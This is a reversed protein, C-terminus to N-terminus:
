GALRRRTRASGVAAPKVAATTPKAVAKTAQKKTSSARRDSAGATAKAAPAAKSVPAREGATDAGLRKRAPATARRGAAPAVDPAATARRTRPAPPTWLEELNYLARAAPQMIHVVFDACDVLVWEGAEEGETSLVTGRAAKVEDHVHRALARTQRTSDATAIILADYMSTLKRTDLVTIDRAKIDELAAIAAKQAKTLRM